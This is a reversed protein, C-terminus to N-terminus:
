YNARLADKCLHLLRKRVRKGHKKIKSADRALAQYGLADFWNSFDENRHHYSISEIPANRLIEVFDGLNNVSGLEEGSPLRFIFKESGGIGEESSEEEPEEPEEEELASAGLRKRKHVPEWKKM